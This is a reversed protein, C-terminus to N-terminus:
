ADDMVVEGDVEGLEDGVVGLAGHGPRSSVLKFERTPRRWCRGRAMRSLM